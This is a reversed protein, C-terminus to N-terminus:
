NYGSVPPFSSAPFYKRKHFFPIEKFGEALLFVRGESQFLPTKAIM